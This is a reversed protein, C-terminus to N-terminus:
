LKHWLANTVSQATFQFLLAIFFAFAVVNDMIFVDVARKIDHRCAKRVDIRQKVENIGPNLMIFVILPPDCPISQVHLVQKGPWSVTCHKRVSCNRHNHEVNQSAPVQTMQQLGM